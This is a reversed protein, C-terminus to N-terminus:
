RTWGLVRAKAAAFEQDSLIRQRHMEALQALQGAIDFPQGPGQQVPAAPQRAPPQAPAQPVNSNVSAAFGRASDFSMGMAKVPWEFGPGRVTLYTTYFSTGEYSTTEARTVDAHVGDLPRSDGNLEIRNSFLLVGRFKAIPAGSNRKEQEKAAEKAQRKAKDEAQIERFSKRQGERALRMQERFSTM